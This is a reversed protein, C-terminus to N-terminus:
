FLFKSKFIYVSLFSAAVSTAYIMVRLQKEKDFMYEFQKKFGILFGPGFIPIISGLSYTLAFSTQSDCLIEFFCGFSIIQLLYGLICCSVLGM